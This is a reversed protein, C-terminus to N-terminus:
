FNAQLIKLLNMFEFIVFNNDQSTGYVQFLSNSSFYNLLGSLFIKKLLSFLSLLKEFM